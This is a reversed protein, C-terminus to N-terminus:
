LSAEFSPFLNWLHANLLTHPTNISIQHPKTSWADHLWCFITMWLCDHSITIYWPISLHISPNISPYLSLYSPYTSLHISPYISLHIPPYIHLCIISTYISIYISLYIFLYISSYISLYISLYITLYISRYNYHIDHLM